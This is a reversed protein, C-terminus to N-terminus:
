ALHFTSFGPKEAPNPNSAATPRKHNKEIFEIEEHLFYWQSIYQRVISELFRYLTDIMLSSSSDIKYLELRYGDNETRIMFSAFVVVPTNSFSVIRDIGSGGWVKAGFLETPKSYPTKEDFVTLMIERRRLAAAMKMAAASKPKGLEIINIKGFLGSQALGKAHKRVTESLQETTFRLAANVPLKNMALYPVMLEVAGFHATAICVGNGSAIVERLTSVTGNGDIHCKLFDAYSSLSGAFPLLKEYYHLLVGEIVSDVVSSSFDLGFNELNRSIREREEPHERYWQMGLEAVASKLQVRDMGSLRQLLGSTQIYRSISSM